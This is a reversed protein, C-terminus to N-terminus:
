NLDKLQLGYRKLYNLSQKNTSNLIVPPAVGDRKAQYWRFVCLCWNDGNKLGPFGYRSNPTVLDNGQKKTYQLFENTVKSCILHTGLDHVNTACKGNRTFGTLPSISCVELTKMDM